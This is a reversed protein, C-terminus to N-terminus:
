TATARSASRGPSASTPWWRTIKRWCSTRPNSTVISLTTGTLTTSPAPLKGRSTCRTTSRSFPNGSAAPRPPDPRGYIAHCLVPLLGHLFGSRPGLDRLRVAAPYPPPSAPRGAPNGASIARQGLEAAIDPRLVKLAVQREHRLDIALYVTAMGGQGLEREIRYRDPVAQPFAPAPLNM